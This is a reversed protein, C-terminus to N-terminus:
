QYSEVHASPSHSPLVPTHQTPHLSEYQYSGLISLYKHTIANM